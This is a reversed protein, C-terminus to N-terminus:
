SYFEVVAHPKGTCVTPSLHTCRVVYTRGTSPDVAQVTGPGYGFRAVYIQMVKRALSCNTNPGIFVVGGCSAKAGAPLVPRSASALSFTGRRADTTNLVDGYDRMDVLVTATKFGGPDSAVQSGMATLSVGVYKTAKAPIVFDSAGLRGGDGGYSPGANCVHQPLCILFAGVCASSLDCTMKVTAVGNIAVAGHSLLSICAHAPCPLCGHHTCRYGPPETGQPVSAQQCYTGCGASTAQVGARSSSPTHPVSSQGCAVVWFLCMVVLVVLRRV